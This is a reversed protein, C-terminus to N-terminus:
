GIEERGKERNGEKKRGERVKWNKKWNKKKRKQVDDYIERSNRTIKSVKRKEFNKSRGYKEDFVDAFSQKM